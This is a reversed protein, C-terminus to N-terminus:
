RNAGRLEIRAMETHIAGKPTLESRMLSLDRVTWEGRPSVRAAQLSVGIRQLERAHTDKVRGITLHPVFARDESQGTITVCEYEIRRYLEQLASLDGGLGVWVIRPKKHNPFCGLGDFRLLFPSLSECGGRLSAALEGASNAPIEGLFKLTLHIQEPRTWRVAPGLQLAKQAAALDKRLADNLHIAIFARVTEM